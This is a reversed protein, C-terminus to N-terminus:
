AVEELGIRRRHCRDQLNQQPHDALFQELAAGICGLVGMEAGDTEDMPEAICEVLVDMKILVM